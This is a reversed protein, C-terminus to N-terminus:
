FFWDIALSGAYAALICKGIKGILVATLFLKLPYKTSGAIIGAIDFFPNPIFALLTIAIFGYKEIFKHMKAYYKQEEVIKHGSYGALYGTIEGLTAGIGAVIGLLVPSSVTSGLAVVVAIGPAPLIVTASSLLMALFGGIYGLSALDDSNFLFLSVGIVLILSAVLAAREKRGLHKRLYQLQQHM